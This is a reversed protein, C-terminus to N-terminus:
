RIGISASGTATIVIQPQPEPLVYGLYYVAGTVPQVYEIELAYVHYTGATGACVGQFTMDEDIMADFSGYGSGTIWFSYSEDALTLVASIATIDGVPISVPSCLYGDASFTENLAATGQLNSVGGSFLQLELDVPTTGSATIELGVARDMVLSWDSGGIPIVEVTYGTGVPISDVLVSYESQGAIIAIHEVHKWNTSENYIAVDMQTTGAPIFRPKVTRTKGLPPITPYDSTGNNEVRFSISVTGSEKIETGCGGLVLLLAALLGLLVWFRKM